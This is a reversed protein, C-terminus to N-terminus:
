PQRLSRLRAADVRDQERGHSRQKAPARRARDRSGENGRRRGRAPEWADEFDIAGSIGTVLDIRNPVVGIQFVTAASLLDEEAIDFLPAGFARLANLVRGANERSPRIWIDLDGTARPLGHAALAYAGIVLFEAGAGSLASLM